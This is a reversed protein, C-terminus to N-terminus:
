LIDTFKVVMVLMQQYVKANMIGYRLDLVRAM